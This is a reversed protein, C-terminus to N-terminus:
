QWEGVGPLIYQEIAQAVGDQDNTRVVHDAKEKLVQISNGM